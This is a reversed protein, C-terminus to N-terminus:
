RFIDTSPKAQTVPLRQRGGPQDMRVDDLDEVEPEVVVGTAVEDHHLRDAPLGPRLQEVVAPWMGVLKELDVTEAAAVARM